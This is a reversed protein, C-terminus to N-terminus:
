AIDLRRRLDEFTSTKKFGLLQFADRYLTEGELTSAIVAKTFRRSARIPQTNFFDGGSSRRQLGDLRRVEAEYAARYEDWSLFEADRARRLVVLTSVRYTQALRQLEPTMDPESPQFERRFAEMPVLLEAAVANCWQEVRDDPARKLPTSTIASQGLWVHALEHALTFIQAAKTDAGNIFVVPALDDVLTFGGFEDPDLIRHTNSGVVGSVMVLIGNAEAAEIMGRLAETWSAYEVRRELTLGLPERMRTAAEAPSHNLDLSGVFTLREANNRRAFERYWAQRQECLFITDLLDASPRQPIDGRRRRFDPAPLEEEPPEPLLLYGVPVHVRRAFAELQKLTPRDKGELWSPLRPSREVLDETTLHAREIAWVLVDPTVDVRVIVILGNQGPPRCDQVM